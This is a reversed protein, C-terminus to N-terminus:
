EAQHERVRLAAPGVTQLFDVLSDKDLQAMALFSVEIAYRAPGEMRCDLVRAIALLPRFGLLLDFEVICGELVPKPSVLTMGKANVSGISVGAPLAVPKSETSAGGPAFHFDGKVLAEIRERDGPAIATFRLGCGAPLATKKRSQEPNQWTVQAGAEVAPGGGPLAFSIRVADGFGLVPEVAVYVGVVSINRLTGEFVGSFGVLRCPQVYPVRTFGSNL